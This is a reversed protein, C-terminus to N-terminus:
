VGILITLRQIKACYTQMLLALLIKFFQFYPSPHLIGYWELEHEFMKKVKALKIEM